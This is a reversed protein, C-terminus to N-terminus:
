AWIKQDAPRRHSPFGAGALGTSIRRHCHPGCMV